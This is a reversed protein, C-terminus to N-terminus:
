AIIDVDRFILLIDDGSKIETGGYEPLLVKDGVNVSMPILKGEKNLEGPGVAMVEGSKYENKTTEPLLIGSSTTQKVLIRNSLPILKKFLSMNIYIIYIGM